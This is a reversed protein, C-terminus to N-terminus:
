QNGDGDGNDILEQLRRAIGKTTVQFADGDHSLLGNIEANMVSRLRALEDADDLVRNFLEGTEPGSMHKFASRLVDREEQTTNM